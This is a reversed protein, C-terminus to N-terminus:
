HQVRVITPQDVRQVNRRFGGPLSFEISVRSGMVYKGSLNNLAAEAARTDWYEIFRQTPKTPTGRIQRIEGFQSFSSEIHQDNIGSPLHFVVITGNNPPKRPDEIRQLPAYSVIIATGHVTSGNTIRKITQAHRLDYYEITLIGNALNSQDIVKASKYPNFTSEIEDPTIEPSVNAILLTRNEIESYEPFNQSYNPGQPSYHGQVQQPHGNNPSNQSQSHNQSNQFGLNSPQHLGTHMNSLGPSINAGLPQMNGPMGGGLNSQQHLQMHTNPTIQPSNTQIQVTPSIQSASTNQMVDQNAFINQYQDASLFLNQSPQLTSDMYDPISRSLPSSALNPPTALFDSWNTTDAM